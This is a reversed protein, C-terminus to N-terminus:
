RQTLQRRNPVPVYKVFMLRNVEARAADLQRVAAALDGTEWADSVAKAAVMLGAVAREDYVVTRM